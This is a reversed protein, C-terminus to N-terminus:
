NNKIHEKLLYNKCLSKVFYSIGLFLTVVITIILFGKVM